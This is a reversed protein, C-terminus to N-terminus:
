STEGRGSIPSGGFAMWNPGAIESIPLSDAIGMNFHEVRNALRENRRGLKGRLMDEAYSLKLRVRGRSTQEDMSDFLLAHLDELVGLLQSRESDSLAIVSGGLPLLLSKFRGVNRRCMNALADLVENPPPSGRERLYDLMASRYELPARDLSLAAQRIYARLGLAFCKPLLCTM